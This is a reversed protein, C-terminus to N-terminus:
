LLSLETNQKAIEGTGLASWCQRVMGLSPAIHLYLVSPMSAGRKRQEAQQGEGRVRSKSLGPNM